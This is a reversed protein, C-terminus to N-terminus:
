RDREIKERFGQCGSIQKRDRRVQENCLVIYVSDCLLRSTVLENFVSVEAEVWTLHPSCIMGRRPWHHTKNQREKASLTRRRPANTCLRGHPCMNKISTSCFHQSLHHNWSWSKPSNDLQIGFCNHKWCKRSDTQGEKGTSDWGTLQPDKEWHLNLSRKSVYSDMRKGSILGAKRLSEGNM